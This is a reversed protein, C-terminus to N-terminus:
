LFPLHAMRLSKKSKSAIVKNVTNTVQMPLVGLVLRM